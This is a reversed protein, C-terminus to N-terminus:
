ALSTKMEHISKNKTENCSCKKTALDTKRTQGGFIEAPVQCNLSHLRTDDFYASSYAVDASTEESQRMVKKITTRAALPKSRVGMSVCFLCLFESKQGCVYHVYVCTFPLLYPNLNPTAVLVEAVRCGRRSRGGDSKLCKSRFQFRGVPHRRASLNGRNCSLSM